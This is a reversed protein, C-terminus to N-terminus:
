ESKAPGVLHGYLSKPTKLRLAKGFSPRSKSSHAKMRKIAEEVDIDESARKEKDVTLM